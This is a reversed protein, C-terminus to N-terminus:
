PYPKNNKTCGVYTIGPPDGFVIPRDTVAPSRTAHVRTLTASALTRTSGAIVPDCRIIGETDDSDVGCDQFQAAILGPELTIAGGKFSTNKVILNRLAQKDYVVGSLPGFYARGLNVDGNVTVGDGSKLNLGNKGGGGAAMSIMNDWVNNYFMWGYMDYTRVCHQGTSGTAHNGAVTWNKNSGLVAAQGTGAWIFYGNMPSLQRNNTVTVTDSFGDGQIFNGGGSITNGDVHIRSVYNSLRLAVRSWALPDAGM